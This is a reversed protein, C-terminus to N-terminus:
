YLYSNIHYPLVIRYVLPKKADVGRSPALSARRGRRRGGMDLQGARRCWRGAGNRWATAVSPGHHWASLIPVVARLPGPVGPCGEGAEARFPRRAGKWPGSRAQKSGLPAAKKQIQRPPARAGFPACPPPLGLPDPPPVGWASSRGLRPSSAPPLALPQAAVGKVQGGAPPRNM